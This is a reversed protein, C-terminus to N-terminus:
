KTSRVDNEDKINGHRTMIRDYNSAKTWKIRPKMSDGDTERWRDGEPGLHVKIYDLLGSNHIVYTATSRCCKFLMWNEEWEAWILKLYTNFLVTIINSQEEFCRLLVGTIRCLM